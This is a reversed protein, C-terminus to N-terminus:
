CKRRRRRYAKQARLREASLLQHANRVLLM